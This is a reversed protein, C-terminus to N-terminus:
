PRSQDRASDGINVKLAEMKGTDRRETAPRGALEVARSLAQISREPEGLAEYVMAKRWWAEHLYPAQELSMRFWRLAQRYDGAVRASEGLEVWHFPNPDEMEELRAELREAEDYREQRVLLNRYNTLVSPSLGHVNIIYDYYHEASVVDGRRSHLIGMLNLVDPQNPEFELARNALSFARDIEEKLLADVALNRYYFAVFEDRSLSRSNVGTRFPFYDIIVSPRQLVVVRETARYEPDLIRTRVHHISLLVHETRDFAPMTDLIEIEYELGVLDSIAISIAAVAMCNMEGRELADSASLPSDVYDLRFVRSELYDRIRYHTPVRDGRRHFVELFREEQSKTLRFIQDVPKLDGVPEFLAHNPLPAQPVSGSEDSPIESAPRSACSATLLVMVFSLCIGAVSSRIVSRLSLQYM